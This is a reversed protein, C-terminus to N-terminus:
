FRSQTRRSRRGKPPRAVDGAKALASGVRPSRPSVRDGTAQLLRGLVPVLLSFLLWTRLRRSFFAFIV